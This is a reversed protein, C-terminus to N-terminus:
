KQFNRVVEELGRAAERSSLIQFNCHNVENMLDGVQQNLKSNEEEKSFLLNKLITIKNKDKANQEKVERYQMKLSNLEESIEKFIQEYKEKIIRQQRQEEEVM